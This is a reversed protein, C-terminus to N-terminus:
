QIENEHVAHRVQAGEVLCPPEVKGDRGGAPASVLYIM